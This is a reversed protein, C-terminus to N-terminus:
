AVVPQKHRELYRGMWDKVRRQSVDVWDLQERFERRIKDGEVHEYRAEGLERDFVPRLKMKERNEWREVALKNRDGPALPEVEEEIEPGLLFQPHTDEWQPRTGVCEWDVIGSIEHTAPDVLINALSLDHHHLRFNRIRSPFLATSIPQLENLVEVIDEADEALDEDFDDRSRAGASQLLKMEELETATLAAIYEADDPYPGLDRPVRLKRGGVFMYPTVVPGLVYKEDDTPVVRVTANSTDIHERFYLNGIAAFPRQIERLQRVFGAIVKTERGKTELDIDSWISTLAVGPVREMLIWECGLENEATFSHAIVRPVPISTHERIYSLTAVESATKYFPEVPSTARFIYEPSGLSDGGDSVAVTYLKNFAGESFFAAALDCGAPLRLHKRSLTNVM